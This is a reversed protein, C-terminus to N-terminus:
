TSSFNECNKFFEKHTEFKSNWFVTIAADAHVSFFDPSREFDSFGDQCNVLNIM